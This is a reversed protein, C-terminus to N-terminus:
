HYAKPKEEPAKQLEKSLPLDYDSKKHLSAPAFSQSTAPNHAATLTNLHSNSFSFINQLTLIVATCTTVAFAVHALQLSVLIANFLGFLMISPLWSTLTHWSTALKSPKDDEHKKSTTINELFKHVNGIHKPFYKQYSPLALGLKEAEKYIKLPMKPWFHMDSEDNLSPDAGGHIPMSHVQNGALVVKMLVNGSEEIKGDTKLVQNGYEERLDKLLNLPTDTDGKYNHITKDLINRKESAYDMASQFTHEPMSPHRSIHVQLGLDSLLYMDEVSVWEHIGAETKDEEGLIRAIAFKESMFVPATIDPDATLSEDSGGWRIKEIYSEFYEPKTYLFLKLAPVMFKQHSTLSAGYRDDEINNLSTLKEKLEALSNLSAPTPEGRHKALKEHITNICSLLKQYGNSHKRIAADLHGCTLLINFNIALTWWGCKGDGPVPILIDETPSPLETVRNNLLDSYLSSLTEEQPTDNLLAM